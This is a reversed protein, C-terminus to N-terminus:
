ATEGMVSTEIIELFDKAALQILGEELAMESIIAFAIAGELQLLPLPVM